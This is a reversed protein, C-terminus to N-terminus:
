GLIANIINQSPSLGNQPLLYDNYFHERAEKLEDNGILINNIFINIDEVNRGKYHLDFAMKGFKNLGYGVMDDKILYMVPKKTYHYEVTYSGCDHIMADSYMFLPVYEGLVLQTNEGKEWLSYYNDTKEKGWLKYLKNILVPHPKFAIQITDKEKSALDLMYDCYTLFTSKYIGLDDIITHHPAWIIRIKRKSQKKWPNSFNAIPTLFVETMPLGTVICNRGKNTMHQSVGKLAVDNEYYLQWCFNKLPQNLIWSNNNTHFGYGVYCFLSNLNNKFHYKRHLITQYSEQYFIIDAKLIDSIKQSNNLVKFNYGKNKIYECLLNLTNNDHKLYPIILITPQFRAHNMMALFLSETKWKGLDSLVFAVKIIKKRRIIFVKIPLYIINYVTLSIKYLVNIIDIGFVTM